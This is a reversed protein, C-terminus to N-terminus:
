TTRAYDVIEMPKNKNAWFAAGGFMRVSRYYKWVRRRRLLRLWGGHNEIIRFLNNRLVRDAEYRAEESAEAHYYMWDHIHCALKVSLGYITDPVFDFKAQSSGCGNCIVDREEQSADWFDDPAFIEFTM